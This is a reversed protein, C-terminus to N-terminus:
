LMLVRSMSVGRFRQIRQGFSKPRVHTFVCDTDPFNEDCIRRLHLLASHAEDNVPVRRRDKGKTHELRFEVTRDAYVGNLGIDNRKDLPSM